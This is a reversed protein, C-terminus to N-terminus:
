KHVYLIRTPIKTFTKAKKIGINTHAQVEFLSWSSGRKNRGVFTLRENLLRLYYFMLLSLECVYLFNSILFKCSFHLILKCSIVAQMSHLRYNYLSLVSIEPRTLLLHADPSYNIWSERTVYPRLLTIPLRLSNLQVKERWTLGVYHWESLFVHM